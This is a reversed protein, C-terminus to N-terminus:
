SDVEPTRTEQSEFDAARRETRLPGVLARFRQHLPHADYGDLAQWSAFEAYLVLDAADAGPLQNVGLELRLLGAVGARMAGVQERMQALDLPQGDRMAEPKLKWMVVHHIV